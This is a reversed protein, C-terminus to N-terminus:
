AAFIQNNTLLPNQSNESQWIDWFTQDIQSGGGTQAAKVTVSQYAPPTAYLNPAMDLQLIVGYPITTEVTVLAM